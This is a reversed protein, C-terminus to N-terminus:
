DCRGYRDYRRGDRYDYYRDAGYRYDGREYYRRESPRYYRGEDRYDRYVCGTLGLVLVGLGVQLCVISIRKLM